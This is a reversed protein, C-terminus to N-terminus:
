IQIVTVENKGYIRNLTKKNRTVGPWLTTPRYMDIADDISSHKTIGVIKMNVTEANCRFVIDEGIYLPIDNHLVYHHLDESLIQNFWPQPINIVTKESLSASWYTGM